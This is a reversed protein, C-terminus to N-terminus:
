KAMRTLRLSTHNYLEYESYGESNASKKKDNKKTIYPKVIFDTDRFLIKMKNWHEKKSDLRVVKLVQGMRDFIVTDRFLDDAIAPAQINMELASSFDTQAHSERVAILCYLVVVFLIPKM